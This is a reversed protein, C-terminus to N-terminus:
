RSARDLKEMAKRAKPDQSLTRLLGELAARDGNLASQAAERVAASDKAHLAALVTKAEPRALLSRIAEPDGLARDSITAM